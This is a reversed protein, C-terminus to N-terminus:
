GLNRSYHRAFASYALPEKVVVPLTQFPGGYFTFTRYPYHTSSDKLLAPCSFDQRFM